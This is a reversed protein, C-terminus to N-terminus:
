AGAKDNNVAIEKRKATLLSQSTSVFIATRRVLWLYLFATPHPPPAVFPNGVIM